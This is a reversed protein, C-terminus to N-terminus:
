SGKLIRLKIFKAPNGAVVQWPRIDKVVVARAGVVAGEGIKVNPGIYSDACIWTQSGITIGLKVLPLSPDGYDHTGACLHARYSITACDGIKIAALNYIFAFEGISSWNGIELNWPM